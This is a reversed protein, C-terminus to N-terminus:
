ERSVFDFSIEVNRFEHGPVTAQFDHASTFTANTTLQFELPVRV